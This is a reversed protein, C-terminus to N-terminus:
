PEIPDKPGQGQIKDVMGRELCDQASFWSDHRLLEEVEEPQIKSHNAYFSRLLEMSMDLVKVNDKIQEYTGWSGASLQHIMMFSSKTIYREHCSMSIITAASAAFGEVISYVPSGIQGIQDAISLADFLSGGGSNVHLWIPIPPHIGELGRSAQEARLRADLERLGKILALCRDSDVQAYFYVHNDVTEVTLTTGVANLPQIAPSPKEAGACLTPHGWPLPAATRGAQQM